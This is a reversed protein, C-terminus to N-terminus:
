KAERERRAEDVISQRVAILVDLLSSNVHVAAMRSSYIGNNSLHEEAIERHTTSSSLLKDIAIDLHHTIDMEYEQQPYPNCDCIWEMIIGYLHQYHGGSSNRAIWGLRLQTEIQDFRVRKFYRTKM